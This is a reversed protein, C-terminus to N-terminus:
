SLMFVTLLPFCSAQSQGYIVFDVLGELGWLSYSLYKMSLNVSLTTDINEELDQCSLLYTYKRSCHVISNNNNLAELKNNLTKILFYAFCLQARDTTYVNCQRGEPEQSLGPSGPTHRSWGILSMLSLRLPISSVTQMAKYRTSVCWINFVSVWYCDNLLHVSFM